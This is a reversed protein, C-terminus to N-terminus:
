IKGAEGLYALTQDYARPQLLNIKDIKPPKSLSRIYMFKNGLNTIM